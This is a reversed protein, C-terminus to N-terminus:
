RRLRATAPGLNNINPLEPLWRTQRLIRAEPSRAGDFPTVEGLYRHFERSMASSRRPFSTSCLNQRYICLPHEHLFTPCIGAFYETM